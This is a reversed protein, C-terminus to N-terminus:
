KLKIKIALAKHNEVNCECDLEEIKNITVNPSIIYGNTIIGEDEFSKYQWEDLELYEPINKSDVGEKNVLPMYFSGGAIVFNGKNYEELIEAKLYDLQKLRVEEDYQELDLNIVILSKDSEEIKFIQKQLCQRPFFIRLPFRNKIPLSIRYSDCEFKSLISQGSHIKRGIEETEYPFLTKYKTAFSSTGEYIKAIESYENINDSRHSKYDVDQLLIIDPKNGKLLEQVKEINANIVEETELNENNGENNTTVLGRLNFSVVTVEEGKKLKKSSSGIVKLEEIPKPSYETIYLIGVVLVAFIIIYITINIVKKLFNM